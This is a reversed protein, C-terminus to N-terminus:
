TLQRTMTHQAGLREDFRADESRSDVDSVLTSEAIPAEVQIKWGGRLGGVLLSEEVLERAPLELAEVTALEGDFRGNRWALM